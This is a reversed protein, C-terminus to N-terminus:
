WHTREASIFVKQLTGPRGPSTKKRQYLSERSPFQYSKKKQCFKSGWLLYFREATLYVIYFLTNYINMKPMTIANMLYIYVCLILQKCPVHM